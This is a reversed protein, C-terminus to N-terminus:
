KEYIYSRNYYTLALKPNLAIAKTYHVIARDFEGM